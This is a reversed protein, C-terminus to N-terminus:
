LKAGYGIDGAGAAEILEFAKHIVPIQGLSTATKTNFGLRLSRLTSELTGELDQNFFYPADGIEIGALRAALICRSKAYLTELSQGARDLRYGYENSLDVPGFVLATMRSHCSAIAEVTSLAKIREIVAAMKISGAPISYKREAADILKALTIMDEPGQAKALVFASPRAQALADVDKEAEGSVFPSIKVWIEADGWDLERLARLANERGQEASVSPSYMDRELVIQVVDAGASAAKELYDWQDAFAALKSRRLSRGRSDRKALRKHDECIRM